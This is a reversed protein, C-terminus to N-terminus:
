LLLDDSSRHLDAVDELDRAETQHGTTHHEVSLDGAVVLDTNKAVTELDECARKCRELTDLVIDLFHLLAELATQRDVAQVIDADAIDDLCVLEDLDLALEFRSGAVLSDYSRLVSWAGDKRGPRNTEAM